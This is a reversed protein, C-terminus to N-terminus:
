DPVRQGTGPLIEKPEWFVLPQLMGLLYNVIEVFFLYALQVVNDFFNIVTYALGVPTEEKNVETQLQDRQKNKRRFWSASNHGEDKWCFAKVLKDLSCIILQKTKLMNEAVLAQNRERKLRRMGGDMAKRTVEYIKYDEGGSGFGKETLTTKLFLLKM